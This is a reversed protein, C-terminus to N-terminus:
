DARADLIEHPDEVGVGSEALAQIAALLYTVAAEVRASALAPDEAANISEGASSLAGFFIRSMTDVMGEDLALDAAAFASAVMERVLGFTSREEQERFREYGLVSPGEQIVIRRYDPRQVIDLFTRLGAYAKEWPDRASRMAAHIAAVAEDEVHLFVAEFLAQKGSFHHYLAGKTVRAGGVIADLSTASYGHDSFLRAAVDVLRKRTGASYDQRRGGGPVKPLGGLVKGPVKGLQGLDKASRTV